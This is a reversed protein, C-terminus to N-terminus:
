SIIKEIIYNKFNIKNIKKRFFTSICNKLGLEKLEAYNVNKIFVDNTNYLNYSYKTLIKTLIKSQATKRNNDNEWSKKLKEGHNKRVGNKWEKKLRESIKKSTSPHTIYGSESDVRLNYGLKSDFTKFYNMWYYERESLNEKKCIEVISIDFNIYGHKSISAHLHPSNHNKFNKNFFARKHQYHRKQFNITKGIYIKGNIKNTIAYICSVKNFDNVYQFLQM